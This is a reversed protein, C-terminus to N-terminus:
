LRVLELLHPDQALNQVRHVLERGDLEQDALQLVRLGVGVEEVCHLTSAGGPRGRPSRYSKLNPPDGGSRAAVPKSARSQAIASARAACREAGAARRARTTAGGSRPASRTASASRACCAAAM